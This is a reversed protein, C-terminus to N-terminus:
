DSNRGGCAAATEGLLQPHFAFEQAPSRLSAAPRTPILKLRIVVLTYYWESQVITHVNNKITDNVLRRLRSDVSRITLAISIGKGRRQQVSELSIM